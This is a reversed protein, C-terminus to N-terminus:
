PDERHSAAQTAAFDDGLALRLAAWALFDMRAQACLGALAENYTAGWAIVEGDGSRRARGCHWPPSAVIRVGCWGDGGLRHLIKEACDDCRPEGADECLADLLAFARRAAEGRRLAGVSLVLVALNRAVHGTAAETVRRAGLPPAHSSAVLRTRVCGGQEPDNLVVWGVDNLLAIARAM